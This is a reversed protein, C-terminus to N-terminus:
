YNVILLNMYKYVLYTIGVLIIDYIVARYTVSHFWRSFFDPTKKNSLYFIMFGGSILITVLVIMGLKMGIKKIKFAKIFLLGVMIYFAILFFDLLLNSVYNDIYYETVLPNNNTIIFPLKIIYVLLITTFAFSICYNIFKILPENM